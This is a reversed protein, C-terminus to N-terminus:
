NRRGMFRQQLKCCENAICRNALQLLMEKPLVENRFDRSVILKKITPMRLVANILSSLKLVTQPVIGGALM